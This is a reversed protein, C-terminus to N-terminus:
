KLLLKIHNLGSRRQMHEAHEPELDSIKNSQLNIQNIWCAKGLREASSPRSPSHSQGPQTSYLDAWSPLVHHSRVSRDVSKQHSHTIPCIRISFTCLRLSPVMFLLILSLQCIEGIANAKMKPTQLKLTLLFLTHQLKYYTEKRDM